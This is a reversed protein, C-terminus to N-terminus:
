QKEESRWMVQPRRASLFIAAAVIIASVIILVAIITLLSIMQDTYRSTVMVDIAGIGTEVTPHDTVVEVMVTTSVARGDSPVTFTMIDLTRKEGGALPAGTYQKTQNGVWSNGIYANWSEYTVTINKIQVSESLKNYYTLYLIGKEGSSYQQKDTWLTITPFSQAFTASAAAFLVACILSITLVRARSKM